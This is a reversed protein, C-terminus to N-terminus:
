REHGDEEGAGQMRAARAYLGNREMLEAHTGREVIEGDRLVIITDAQMLTAVRHAILILTSSGAARRLNGRIAEDTKADVASLADDFVMIPAESLLTRAIATRQKQGGSLTVGREGVVTDYGDRFEAIASTLCAEQAAREIDARSADERTIAINEALTRSFLFPEQLVVGVGRRLVHADMDRVDVGGIRVAGSEPDYLRALLLAITSKGSGTEGFVGLTGGAPVTFSVDRLVAKQEYAFTVHDFEVDGHLDAQAPCPCPPEPESELIYLLRDLSVGAKSMESIVRGLARVPWSLQRTYSVFALYTGLSLTGGVCMTVGLLVVTLVQGMSMLDGLTWFNTLMAGLKIWLHTYKENKARFKKLEDRERGFARVVRVGTLNEQVMASLEGEAEDCATYSASARKFFLFSYVVIVPIFALAALAMKANMALMMGMYVAILFVTSMLEMVQDSIFTRVVEVDATCRQIIDGTANSAHWSYPLRQVHRYLEDRLSKVFRESGRPLNADQVFGAAFQLLSVVAAAACATLLLAHADLGRLFAPLGDTEGLLASDVTFRIIQTFAMRLLTVAVSAGIGLAFAPAAPRLHHALLRAKKNLNKEKKMKRGM